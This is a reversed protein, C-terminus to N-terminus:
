HEADLRTTADQRDHDLMGKRANELAELLTSGNGGSGLHTEPCGGQRSFGEHWSLEVTWHDEGASDPDNSIEMQCCRRATDDLLAQLRYLRNLERVVPAGDRYWNRDEPEGLVYEAGDPGLLKAGPMDFLRRGMEAVQFADVDIGPILPQEPGAERGTM